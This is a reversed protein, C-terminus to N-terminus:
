KTRGIAGPTTVPAEFGPPLEQRCHPCPRPQWSEAFGAVLSADGTLKDVADSSLHKATFVCAALMAMRDWRPAPVPPVLAEIDKGGSVEAYAIQFVRQVDAAAHHIEPRHAKVAGLGVPTLSQYARALEDLVIREHAPHGTAPSEVIGGYETGTQGAPIIDGYETM